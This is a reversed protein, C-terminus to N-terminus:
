PRRLAPSMLLISAILSIVLGAVFGWANAREEEMDLLGGDGASPVSVVPSVEAVPPEPQVPVDTVELVEEVLPLESEPAVDEPPTVVV